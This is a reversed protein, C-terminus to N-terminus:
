KLFVNEAFIYNNIVLPIIGIRQKQKIKINKRTFVIFAINYYQIIYM